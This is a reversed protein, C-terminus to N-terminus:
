RKQWQGNYGEETIKDLKFFCIQAIRANEEIVIGYSNEVILLLTLNEGKFGADWISSHIVAGCRTLSSRQFILAATELDLEISENISVIYEGRSLYYSKGSSNVEELLPTQTRGEKPIVGCNKFFYIKNLSLDIGNPQLSGDKVFDKEKLTQRSLMKVGYILQDM